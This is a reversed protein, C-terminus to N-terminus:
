IIVSVIFITISTLRTTVSLPPRTERRTGDWIGQGLDLWFKRGFGSAASAHYNQNGNHYPVAWLSQRYPKYPVNIAYRCFTFCDLWWRRLLERGRHSWAGSVRKSWSWWTRTRPHITSCEGRLEGRLEGVAVYYVLWFKLLRFFSILLMSAM